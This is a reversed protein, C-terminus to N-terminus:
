QEDKHTVIIEVVQFLILCQSSYSIRRTQSFPGSRGRPSPHRSPSSGHLISLLLSAFYFLSM